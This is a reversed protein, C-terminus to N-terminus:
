YNFNLIIKMTRFKILLKIERMKAYSRLLLMIQVVEIIIKVIFKNLKSDLKGVSKSTDTEFETM